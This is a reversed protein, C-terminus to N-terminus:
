GLDGQLGGNVHDQDHRPDVGQLGGNVHDQDHRPDVGQLGGNVHDQDHRPDVGLLRMDASLTNNWKRKHEECGHWRLRCRIMLNAEVGMTERLESSSQRERLSVGCMWRTEEDRDNRQPFVM